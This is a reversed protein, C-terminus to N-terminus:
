VAVLEQFRDRAINFALEFFDTQAKDVDVHGVNGVFRAVDGREALFRRSFGDVVGFLANGLFLAVARDAFRLGVAVLADLDRLGVRQGDLAFVVGLYFDRHGVRGAAFFLGFGHADRRRGFLNLRGARQFLSVGGLLLCFAGAVGTFLRRLFGVDDCFGFDFLAAFLKFGLSFGLLDAAM